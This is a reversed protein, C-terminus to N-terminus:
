SAVGAGVPMTGAAPPPPVTETETKGIELGVSHSGVDIAMARGIADNLVHPVEQALMHGAGPLHVHEAGPIGAVLERGHVSPTLPDVGGSVVVTRARISALAGYQDYARL